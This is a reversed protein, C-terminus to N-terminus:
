PLNVVGDPDRIATTSFGTSTFLGTGIFPRLGKLRTVVVLNINAVYQVTASISTGTAAKEVFVVHANDDLVLDQAGTVDGITGSALTFINTTKNVSSYPFVRQRRRSWGFCAQTRCM